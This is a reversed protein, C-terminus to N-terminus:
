GILSKGATANKMAPKQIPKFNQAQDKNVPRANVSTKIAKGKSNSNSVGMKADTDIRTQRPLNLSNKQVGTKEQKMSKTQLKKFSEDVVEDDGAKAMLADLEAELEKTNAKADLILDNTSRNDDADELGDEDAPEEDTEEEAPADLEEEESTPEIDEVESLDEKDDAFNPVGEKSMEEKGESVIDKEEEDELESGMDMDADLGLDADAEADDCCGNIKNGIEDFLEKVDDGLGDVVEFDGRLDDLAMQAEDRASEVESDEGLRLDDLKNKLEDFKAQVEDTVETPYKGELEAVAAMADDLDTDGAEEESDVVDDVVDQIEADEEPNDIEESEMISFINKAQRDWNNKFKRTATQLDGALLADVCEYLLKEGLTAM